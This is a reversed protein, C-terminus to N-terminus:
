RRKELDNAWVESSTQDTYLRLEKFKGLNHEKASKLNDIAVNDRTYIFVDDDMECEAIIQLLERVTM